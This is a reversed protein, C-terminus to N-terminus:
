TEDKSLFPQGQWCQRVSGDDPDVEEVIEGWGAAVKMEDPMSDFGDGLHERCQDCYLKQNAIDAGTIPAPFPGPYGCATREAIWIRMPYHPDRYTRLYLADVRAAEAYSQFHIRGGILFRVLNVGCQVIPRATEGTM